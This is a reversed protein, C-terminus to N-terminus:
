DVRETFNLEDSKWYTQMFGELDQKNWAVIQQELVLRIGAEALSKDDFTVIAPETETTTVDAKVSICSRV